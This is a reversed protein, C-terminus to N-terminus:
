IGTRRIRREMEGEHLEELGQKCLHHVLFHDEFVDATLTGPTLTISNAYLAKQMPSSVNVPLRTWGPEVPLAPDWIRRAVNINAKVLEWLLWFGYSLLALSPLLCVPTKDVKDMRWLLWTSLMASLAGLTLLLPTFHGSLILWFLYLILSVRLYHMNSESIFRGWPSPAHTKIDNDLTVNGFWRM